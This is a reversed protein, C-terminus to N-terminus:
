DGVLSEFKELLARLEAHLRKPVHSEFADILSRFYWLQESPGANFRDLYARGNSEVDWVLAHLNHRKDCAAVLLSSPETDKLHAIYRTKRDKWPAKDDISDEPNTDTCDIVIRLVDAGFEDSIIRERETRETSSAADELADHFLAAVAQDVSGGHEFVLGQVQILHSWYPIRSSRRFHAAHWGLGLETARCLRRQDEGTFAM